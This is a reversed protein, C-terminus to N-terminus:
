FSILIYLALIAFIFFFTLRRACFLRAILYFFVAGLRPQAQDAGSSLTAVRQKRKFSNFEAAQAAVCVSHRRWGGREKAGNKFSKKNRKNLVFPHFPILFAYTFHPRGSAKFGGIKRLM